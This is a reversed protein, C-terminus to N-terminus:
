NLNVTSTDILERIQKSLTATPALTQVFLNNGSVVHYGLDNILLQNSYDMIIALVCQSMFKISVVRSSKVMGVVQLAPEHIEWERHM